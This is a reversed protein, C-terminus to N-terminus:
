ADVLDKSRNFQPDNVADPVDEGPLPDKPLPRLWDDPVHAYSGFGGHETVIDGGKSHVRWCLGYQSHAPGDVYLCEVIKNVNPSLQGETGKIITALDGPKCRLTQTM